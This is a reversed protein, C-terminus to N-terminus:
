WYWDGVGINFFTMKGVRVWCCFFVESQDVFCWDRKRLLPIQFRFEDVFNRIEYVTRFCLFEYKPHKRIYLNESVRVFKRNTRFLGCMDIWWITGSYQTMPQCCTGNQSLVWGAEGKIPCDGLQQKSVRWWITGSFQTMWQCYADKQNQILQCYAGHQSQFWGTEEQIPCDGVQRKSISWMITGGPRLGTAEM